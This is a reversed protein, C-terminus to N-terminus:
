ANRKGFMTKFYEFLGRDIMRPAAAPERLPMCGSRQRSLTLTNKSVHRHKGHQRSLTNM